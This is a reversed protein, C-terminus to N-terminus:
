RGLPCKVKADEYNKIDVNGKCGEFTLYGKKHKKLVGNSCKWCFPLRTLEENYGAEKLLAEFQHAHEAYTFRIFRTLNSDVKYEFEYTEKQSGIKKTYEKAKM